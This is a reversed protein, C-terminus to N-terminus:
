IKIEIDRLLNDIFDVSKPDHFKQYDSLRIEKKISAIAVNCEDKDWYKAKIIYDSFVMTNNKTFDGLAESWVKREPISWSWYYTVTWETLWKFASICLKINGEEIIKHKPLSCEWMVLTDGDYIRKWFDIPVVLEDQISSKTLCLSSLLVAKATM